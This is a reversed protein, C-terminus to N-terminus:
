QIYFNKLIFFATKNIIRLTLDLDCFNLDYIPCYIANCNSSKSLYLEMLVNKISNNGFSYNFPESLYLLHDNFFFKHLNIFYIFFNFIYSIAEKASNSSNILLITQLINFNLNRKRM